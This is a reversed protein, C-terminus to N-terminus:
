AADPGLGLRGLWARLQRYVAPAGVIEEDDLPWDAPFLLMPKTQPGGLGGHSGILEEFAAVEGTNPDVMSIVAIDPAHEMADLRRLGAIAHPGFPETPDTGAVRGDDLYRIGDSGVVIPGQSETRVLVLGIGPHNALADVLGAHRENLAEVTARGPFRPFSILGLNGSAVVVLDPADGAHGHADPPGARVAGGDRRRRTAARTVRPGAGRGAAAIESLFANMPGWEEVRSTAALVREEGGLLSRVLDQLTVGYRQLFTAGLTQGHDSVVVFAYPRPADLAARELSGIAGDVGDLADLAEGREPGAHHAIEDYDTYNVFIVSTGRYMEEIVLATGLDRLLVNTGARLLPYVGGRGLRPVVGNRRQRWSQYWEKAVEAVFRVITHLYNYPSLFFGYFASSRGLGQAPDGLAAITLYSRHADGTVLNGISVGDNSLLGEGDSVRRVIELADAPRNSVMLRGGADAKEFWRFAPIGDNAGHLIGAQSASTQTPILAEWGILRHSGSRLWRSLTPVRGARLQHLLIPHALGDVQVIVVGPRDTRPVRNGESILQHVLMGFYSDGQNFALMSTLLTNAVAIIWSAWFATWFGDIELGPVLPALLLILAVQLVIAAIAIAVGSVSAALALLVPRVIANLLGLAIAATFPALPETIRLGGLIWDAALLGVVSVILSVVIRALLALPGARWTWLVRLQVRYLDILRRIPGHSDVRSM